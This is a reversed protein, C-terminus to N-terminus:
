GTLGVPEAFEVLNKGHPKRMTGGLRLQLQERAVDVGSVQAGSETETGLQLTL